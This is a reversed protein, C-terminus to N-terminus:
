NIPQGAFFRRRFFRPKPMTLTKATLLTFPLIIM